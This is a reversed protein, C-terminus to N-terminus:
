VGDLNKRGAKFAAYTSAPLGSGVWAVLESNRQALRYYAANWATAERTKATGLITAAGDLTGRVVWAGGEERCAADHVIGTVVRKSLGVM